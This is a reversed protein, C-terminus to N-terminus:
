KFSNPCISASPISSVPIDLLTVVETTFTVFDNRSMDETGDDMYTISSKPISSM